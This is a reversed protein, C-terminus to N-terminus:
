KSFVMHTPSEILCSATCIPLQYQLEAEQRSELYYWEEPAAASVSAKRQVNWNLFMQIPLGSKYRAYFHLKRDSTVLVYLEYACVNVEHVYLREWVIKIFNQM